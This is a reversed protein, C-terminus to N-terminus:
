LLLYLLLRQLLLHLLLLDASFNGADLLHLSLIGYDLLLCVPHIGYVVCHHCQLGRAQELLSSLIAKLGYLAKLLMLTNQMLTLLLHLERLLQRLLILLQTLM